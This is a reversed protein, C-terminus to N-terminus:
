RSGDGVSVAPDGFPLDFLAGAELISKVRKRLVHITLHHACEAEVRKGVESLAFGKEWLHLNAEKHIYLLLM